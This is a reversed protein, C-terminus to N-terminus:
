PGGLKVATLSSLVGTLLNAPGADLPLPPTGYNGDTEKMLNLRIADSPDTAVSAATYEGDELKVLQTIISSAGVATVIM